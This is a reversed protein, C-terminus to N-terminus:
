SNPPSERTQQHKRKDKKNILKEKLNQRKVNTNYPIPCWLAKWNKKEIPKVQGWLGPRTNQIIKKNLKKVEDNLM